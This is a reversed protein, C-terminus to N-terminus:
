REDDEPAEYQELFATTSVDSAFGFAPMPLCTNTGPQREACSASRIVDGVFTTITGPPPMYRVEVPGVAEGLTILVVRDDSPDREIRTIPVEAGGSFIAFYGSYAGAGFTAPETIPRDAVVRVVTASAKVVEM